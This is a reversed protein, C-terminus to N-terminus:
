MSVDAWGGKMSMKSWDTNAPNVNHGAVRWPLLLNQIRCHDECSKSADASAMSQHQDSMRYTVM